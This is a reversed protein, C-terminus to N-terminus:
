PIDAFGESRERRPTTQASARNIPPFLHLSLQRKGGRAELLV